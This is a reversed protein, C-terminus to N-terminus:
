ASTSEISKSTMVYRKVNHRVQQRKSTGKLKIIYTKIEHRVNWVKQRWSM